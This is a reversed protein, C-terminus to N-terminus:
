SISKAARIKDASVGAETLLKTMGQLFRDSGCVYFRAERREAVAAAVAAAAGAHDTRVQPAALKALEDAYLHKNDRAVHILRWNITEGHQQILSRVPAVGIGGALFVVEREERSWMPAPAFHKFKINFLQCADGPQMAAMAKKFLTGSSVDMAFSLLGERPASAFSMLGVNGRSLNATGPTVLSVYMGAEYPITSGNAPKFHWTYVGDHEHTRSQLTITSLMMPEAGAYVKTL